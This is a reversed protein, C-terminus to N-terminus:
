PSPLLAPRFSLTTSWDGIKTLSIARVKWYYVAGLQLGSPTFISAVIGNKIQPAGFDPNTDLWLEYSTAWDVPAWQLCTSQILYSNIPVPILITPRHDITTTPLIESTDINTCGIILSVTTLPLILLVSLATDKKM